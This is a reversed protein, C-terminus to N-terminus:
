NKIFILSLLSGLLLGIFNAGFNQVFFPFKYFQEIGKSSAGANKIVLELGFAYQKPLSDDIFFFFIFDLCFAILLTIAFIILISYIKKIPRESNCVSEARYKNIFFINYGISVFFLIFSTIVALLSIEITDFGDRKWFYAVSYALILSTVATLLAPISHQYIIEETKKM